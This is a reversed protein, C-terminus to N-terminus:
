NKAAELASPIYGTLQNASIDIAQVMTMKSLELPVPGHLLNNSLNFYFALNALGAVEPPIHGSLRNYSLDLQLLNV